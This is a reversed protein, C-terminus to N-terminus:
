RRVKGIQCVEETNEEGLSAEPLKYGGHHLAGTKGKHESNRTNNLFRQIWAGVRLYHWLSGKSLLEDFVDLERGNVASAFVQKTAEAETDSEPTTTTVIDPPWSAPDKGGCCM